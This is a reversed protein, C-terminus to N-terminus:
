PEGQTELFSLVISNFEAPNEMNSMHGVGKMVVKRAGRIGTALREAINQFDPLDREGVILLAPVHIESLREASPPRIGRAPSKNVWTWGSYEGVMQTLKTRCDSQECAPVFLAHELWMRNGASPGAQVARKEIATFSADFEESWEFGDLASDVLVLSRLGDPYLVAYQLAIAGGLSLGIVHAKSVELYDLLARLDEPHRFREDTKQPASKGFGRLDYRIARYRDALTEFQSDWMRMDLGLGHVLVVPYGEGAAQYHLRTGNVEAFAM